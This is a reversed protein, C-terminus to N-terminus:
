NDATCAHEEELLSTLALLGEVLIAISAVCALSHDAV